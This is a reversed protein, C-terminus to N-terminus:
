VTECSPPLFLPILLRFYTSLSITHTHTNPRPHRCFDPVRHLIHTNTHSKITPIYRNTDTFVSLEEKRSTIAAWQVTHTVRYQASHVMHLDTYANHVSVWTQKLAQKWLQPFVAPTESFVCFLNNTKNDIEIDRERIPSFICCNTIVYVTMRLMDSCCFAGGVSFEVENNNKEKMKNFPPWQTKQSQMDGSDQRMDSLM